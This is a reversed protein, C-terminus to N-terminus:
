NSATYSQAIRPSREARMRESWEALNPRASARGLKAPPPGNASIPDPSGSRLFHIPHGRSLIWRIQRLPHYARLPFLRAYHSTAGFGRRLRPASVWSAAISFCTTILSRAWSWSVGQVRMANGVTTIRSHETRMVSAYRESWKPCCRACRHAGPTRM